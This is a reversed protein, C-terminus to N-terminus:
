RDSDGHEQKRDPPSPKQGESQRVRENDNAIFEPRKKMAWWPVRIFVDKWNTWRFPSIPALYPVGFSRLSAMHILLITLGSMIGFLGMTGGLIMMAFRILRAAIAVNMAPIVFSAIATFSVVIVMSGSVLGAQVAAQGLVLAGVISIAPGIVRPMRVGAERLVEFTIEMLLAEFVAPFPVGERQAALSILLPTPLMEQHFTTIAIYLAPLLMSVFFAVYRISRLFTAIDFRQYYDESSQFFKIFTVPAILVFPTGDVIIVVQGELIAAAAADPRETNQITPFPSSTADEIFEEIYGSELISDTDIKDLRKHIEEVVTDKAIGKLYVMAVKTQTQRGINKMAIRIQPSKIRRRILSINTTINEIFSEKPGRIVTQTSPEEVSRKEGGSSEAAMVITCDHLLVLTNGALAKVLAEELTELQVVNGVNLVRNKIIELWESSSLETSQHGWEVMFPQLIMQNIMQQDVLGEIYVFAARVSGSKDNTFSRVVIDPSDGLASLIWRLNVGLDTTIPQHPPNSRSSDVKTGSNKM